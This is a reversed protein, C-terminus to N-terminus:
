YPTPIVFNRNFSWLAQWTADDTFGIGNASIPAIYLYPYQRASGDAYLVPSGYQHPGGMHNADTPYPAGFTEDHIYGHYNKGTLNSPENADGWRMHDFTGNSYSKSSITAWGTDNTSNPNNYDKPQMIKHGLMISYAMGAGNTVDTSRVNANNVITKLAAAPAVGIILDLDGQGGGNHTISNDFQGAYDAKPGIAKTRRGPCLFTDVGTPTQGVLNGQEVYPLIQTYFSVATQGSGGNGGENPFMGWDGHYNNFCIGLQHLNNICATTQVAERAKQVAPILLGILIAIIAIVVLLEIL